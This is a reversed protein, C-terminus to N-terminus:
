PSASLALTLVTPPMEVMMAAWHAGVVTTGRQLQRDWKVMPWTLKRVEGPRAGTRRYTLLIQRFLADSSHRLLSRFEAPTAVRERGETPLHEVKRLPNSPLVDNDLAWNWCRQVAVLGHNVSCPRLGQEVLHKKWEELDLKGINRALSKGHRPVWGQWRKDKPGAQFHLYDRFTANSRHLKVWDLFQDCLEWVAMQHVTKTVPQGGMKALMEHFAQEAQEKNKFGHALKTRVGGVDTKWWGRHFFPKAQRSM